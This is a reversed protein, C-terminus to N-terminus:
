EEDRAAIIGCSFINDEARIGLARMQARVGEHTAAPDPVFGELKNQEDLIRRLVNKDAWLIEPTDTNTASMEASAM